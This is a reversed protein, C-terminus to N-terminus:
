PAAAAAAASPLFRYHLGTRDTFSEVAHLSWGHIEVPDSGASLVRLEDPTTKRADRVLTAHPRFAKRDFAVGLRDLAGRIADSEANLWDPLSSPAIWLLRGDFSGIRDLRLSRPPPLGAVASCLAPALARPATGIFALTLHLRDQPVVRGGRLAALREGEAHLARRAAPAPRLAIFWRANELHEGAPRAPLGGSRRAAGGGARTRGREARSPDPADM